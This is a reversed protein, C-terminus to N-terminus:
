NLALLLVERLQKGIENISKKALPDDPLIEKFNDM